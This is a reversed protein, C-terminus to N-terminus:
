LDAGRHMQEALMLRVYVPCSRVGAYWDQLTRVPIYFRRSAQTPTMPALLERMPLHVADWLRRLEDIWAQPFEADEAGDWISSLAVDSLWVDRDTYNDMESLVFNRQENTM